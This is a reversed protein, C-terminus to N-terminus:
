MIFLYIGPVCVCMYIYVYVYTCADIYMYLYIHYQGFIIHMCIRHIFKYTNLTSACIYLIYYHVCYARESTQQLWRVWMGLITRHIHMCAYMFTHICIYVHIYICMSAYMCIYAYIFIFVCLYVYVCPMSITFLCTLMLHGGIQM